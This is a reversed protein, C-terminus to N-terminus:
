GVTTRDAPAALNLAGTDVMGGSLAPKPAALGWMEPITPFQSRLMDSFGFKFRAANEAGALEAVLQDIDLARPETPTNDFFNGAIGGSAAKAFSHGSSQFKAVPAPIAKALSRMKDTNEDQFGKFM